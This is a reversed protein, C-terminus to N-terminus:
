FIKNDYSSINSENIIPLTCIKNRINKDYKIIWKKIFNIHDIYYKSNINYVFANFYIPLYFWNNINIYLDNKYTLLYLSIYNIQTKFLMQEHFSLNLFRFKSFFIIPILLENNLIIPILIIVDPFIKKIRNYLNNISILSITNNCTFNITNNCTFNIIKIQYPIITLEM